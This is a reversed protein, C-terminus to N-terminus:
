ITGTRRVVLGVRWLDQRYDFRGIFITERAQLGDPQALRVPATDKDFAEGFDIIRINEDDEDDDLPWGTWQAPQILQSPVSQGLPEGDARTLEDPEPHGLAEFLEAESLKSLRRNCFAVNHISIDATMTLYTVPFNQAPLPVCDCTVTGGNVFGADHMFAVAKLIQTSIRIIVDTDLREGFLHADSVLTNVTPGLLEFVFCQHYGNPGEHM